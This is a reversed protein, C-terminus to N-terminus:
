SRESRNRERLFELIVILSLWFMFEGGFPGTSFLRCAGSPSPRQGVNTAIASLSRKHASDVRKRRQDDAPGSAAPKAAQVDATHCQLFSLGIRDVLLRELPTKPALEAKLEVLCRRVCELTFLDDSLLRLYVEEVRVALDGACRWV